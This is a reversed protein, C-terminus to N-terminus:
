KLKYYSSQNSSIRSSTLYLTSSSFEAIKNPALSTDMREFFCFTVGVPYTMDCGNSSNVFARFVGHATVTNKGDRRTIASYCGVFHDTDGDVRLSDILLLANRESTSQYLGGLNTADIRPLNEKPTKRTAANPVKRLGFQARASVACSFILLITLTQLISRQLM